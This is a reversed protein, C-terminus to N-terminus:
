QMKDNLYFFFFIGVLLFIFFVILQNYKVVIFYFQLIICISLINVVFLIYSYMKDSSLRSDNNNLKTYM